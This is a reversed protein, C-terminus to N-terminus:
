QGPRLPPLASLLSTTSFGPIQDVFAVRGGYGEVIERGVVIGQRYEGGKILVDPRLAQILPIPTEEDFAVVYDVAELGAIMLMREELPIRPRGPGKLRRVSEDSNVAVVLIEGERAAGNLLHHHGLHLLDFCGNTFVVTKGAARARAILPVLDELKKVKEVFPHGEYLLEQVIEERSVPTVGVKRVEIGAAVNALEVAQPLAGGAAVTLGLVSLVMDGAGTVDTVVRARTPFHRALGDRQYLFIGDRDMTVAVAAVDLERSLKEAARACGEVDNCGVGSALSAEYRNPCMLRSGRYPSYDKMLAPDVLFPTRPAIEELGALLRRSVLGKQYDSVLVADLDSAQAQFHGLIAAVTPDSVPDRVEEDVRLLQQVARHAHQVFGIHRAKLTTPRGEEVVLGELNAGAKILLEQLRSGASDAGRVSFFRVDAGLRALNSVVSGAGGTRYERSTVRLVPIPAEPSVREVEGWIYEDLIADGIVAIRPRGIGEIFRSLETSM